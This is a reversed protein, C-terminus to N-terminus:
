RGEKSQFMGQDSRWKSDGSFQKGKNTKKKEEKGIHKRCRGNFLAVM